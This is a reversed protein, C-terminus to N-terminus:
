ADRRSQAGISFPATGAPARHLEAIPAAPHMLGVVRKMVLPLLYSPIVMLIVFLTGQPDLTPALVAWAFSVNRWGVGYMGALRVSASRDSLATALGGAGISIATIMLTMACLRLAQWPVTAAYRFGPGRAAALVCLASIALGRFELRRAAVKDPMLYRLLFALGAPLVALWTARWALMEPGVAAAERAFLSAVLPLIFPAALTTVLAALICNRDPLKLIAAMPGAGQAIPAASIVVMVVALDAGVGIARCALYVLAPALLSAAVAMAATPWLDSRRAGRPLTGTEIRSMTLIGFFVLVFAWVSVYQESIKGAAPFATGLGLFVWPLWIGNRAAFRLM